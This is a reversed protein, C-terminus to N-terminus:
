LKGGTEVVLGSLLPFVSTWGPDLNQAVLIDGAEVKGLEALTHVVRAPGTALGHCFATGAIAGEPLDPHGDSPENDVETEVDDFLYTAPLRGTNRAFEARRADLTGTLGPPATHGDLLGFFEEGRLLFVDDTNNLVGQRVLREARELVLSRLHTLLYDLHYRQWERPLPHLGQVLAM